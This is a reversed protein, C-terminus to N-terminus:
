ASQEERNINAAAQLIRAIRDANDHLDALTGGNHVTFDSGLGRWAIESAHTDSDPLGPRDIELIWGGYEIVLAHENPFRVDTVVVDHGDAILDDLHRRAVDVWVNPGFLDRGVETGFVQALRRMEPYLLKAEDWGHYDILDAFRTQEDVVVPNLKYLAKTMADAFAFRVFGHEEVLRAAFTDKGAQKQAMLGLVISV